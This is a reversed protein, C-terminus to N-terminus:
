AGVARLPREKAIFGIWGGLRRLRSGRELIRIGHCFECDEEADKEGQECEDGEDVGAAGV